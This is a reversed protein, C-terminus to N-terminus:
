KPTVNIVIPAQSTGTSVAAVPAAMAHGKANGEYFAPYWSTHTLIAAHVILSTLAVGAFFLPLGVQPKVRLWMRGYYM